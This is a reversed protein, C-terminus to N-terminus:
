IYECTNEVIVHCVTGGVGESVAIACNMGRWVVFREGAGGDITSARGSLSIGALCITM